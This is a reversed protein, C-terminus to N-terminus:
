WADVLADAEGFCRDVLGDRVRVLPGVLPPCFSWRDDVIVSPGDTM